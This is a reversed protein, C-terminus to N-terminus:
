LPLGTAAAAATTRRLFSRRSIQIHNELLDSMRSFYFRWQPFGDNERRFQAPNRILGLIQHKKEM